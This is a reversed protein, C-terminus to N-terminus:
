APVAHETSERLFDLVRSAVAPVDGDMHLFHGGSMHVLQLQAIHTQALAAAQGTHSGEALILLTECRIAALVAACQATTLKSASAGRLREDYRWYYGSGDAAPELGREILLTASAPSLGKRQRARIAVEKSEILRPERDM